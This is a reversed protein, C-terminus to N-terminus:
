KYYELSDFFTKISPLGLVTYIPNIDRSRWGQAEVEVSIQNEMYDNYLRFGHAERYCSASNPFRGCYAGFASGYGRKLARPESLIYYDNDTLYDVLGDAGMPAERELRITLVISNDVSVFKISRDLENQSTELTFDEPPIFSIYEGCFKGKSIKFKM